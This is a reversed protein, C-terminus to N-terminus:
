QQKQHPQQVACGIIFTRDIHIEETPHIIFSAPETAQETAGVPQGRVYSTTTVCLASRQAAGLPHSATPATRHTPHAPVIFGCLRTPTFNRSCPSVKYACSKFVYPGPEPCRTLTWLERSTLYTWTRACVAAVQTSIIINPWPTAPGFVSVPVRSFINASFRIFLTSM